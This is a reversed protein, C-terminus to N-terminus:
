SVGCCFELFVSIDFLQVFGNASMSVSGSLGPHMRPLVSTVKPAKEENGGGYPWPTSNPDPEM